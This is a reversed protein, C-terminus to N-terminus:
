SRKKLYFITFVYIVCYILLFSIKNDIYNFTIISTLIFTFIFLFTLNSSFKKLLFHHLHNTDGKFPHKGKAIRFIFLRFLELGPLGMIIFIEDCFFIAEGSNYSKIIIYCILFALFQVGGEGLYSRSQYNLFLFFILSLIIIISLSFFIGKFIFISFILVSYSGVQLNIGDFMNFANIFLLFCLITFFYSFINLEIIHSFSYFKLNTILLNEDFMVIFLTLIILTFLKTNAKLNYKDDLVGFIFFLTSGLILSFLERNNNFYKYDLLNFEFYNDLSLFFIFNLYIYTGGILPVSSKQFKRIGDRSDYINYIKSIKNFFFLLILNFVVSIIIINFIM